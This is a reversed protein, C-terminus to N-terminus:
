FNLFFPLSVGGEGYLNVCEILLSLWIRTFVQKKKFLIDKFSFLLKGSGFCKKQGEVNGIMSNNFIASFHSELERFIMELLDTSNLFNCCNQLFSCSIFDTFFFISCKHFNKCFGVVGPIGLRDGM